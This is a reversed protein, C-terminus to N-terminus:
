LFAIEAKCRLRMMREKAIVVEEVGAGTEVALSRVQKM